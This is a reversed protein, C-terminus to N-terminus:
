RVGNWRCRPAYNFIAIASTQRDSWDVVFVPRRKNGFHQSTIATYIGVRESHLRTNSLSRYARRIGHKERAESEISRRLRTVTLVEEHRLWEDPSRGVDPVNWPTFCNLKNVIASYERPYKLDQDRTDQKLVCSSRMM